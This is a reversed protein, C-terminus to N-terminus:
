SHIANSRIERKAGDSKTCVISTSARSRLTRRILCSTRRWRRLLTATEAILAQAVDILHEDDRVLRRDKSIWAFAREVIWRRPLLAFRKARAGRRIVEIPIRTTKDAWAPTVIKAPGLVVEGKAGVSYDGLRGAKFTDGEKGTIKCQALAQSGYYALYGLDKVNWWIDQVSGNQIYKKILTAPALGTLKM